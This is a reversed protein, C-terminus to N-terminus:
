DRFLYKSRPKEALCTLAADGAPLAPPLKRHKPETMIRDPAGLAAQRPPPVSVVLRPKM